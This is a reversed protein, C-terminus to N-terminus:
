IAGAVTSIPKIAVPVLVGAGGAVGNEQQHVPLHVYGVLFSGTSSKQVTQADAGMYVADGHFYTDSGTTKFEFVEGAKAIVSIETADRGLSYVQGDGRMVGVFDTDTAQTAQVAKKNTSDWAIMDGSTLVAAETSTIRLMELLIPDAIHGKHRMTM